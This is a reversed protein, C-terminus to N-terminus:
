KRLKLFEKLATIFGRNAEESGISLRLANPFGYGTVRRLIYGNTKLYDDALAASKDPNNSFHILLFNTVSPTVNLGLQMIENSLWERWKINYAIAKKLFEHDHVASAGAAQAPISVNFAGRIRNLADIVHLPAYLWGIRLGALGYIKSFTRTMVVNENNKVLEIGADYDDQTVFEAYAGDLVLLVHRPLGAHLREIEQRTLYTGTPNAPNAIFVIKTKENIAHLIADIDIRCNHEKVIIPLAAAGRIQIEYVNFGHETMIGEDGCNLYTNALLGLLDDSGNGAMLNEIPLKTVDSIAKLLPKSSGDPYRELHKAAEEYAKIVRPSPPFPSENSSLKHYTKTSKNESSGPIYATIDMIGKKPLPRSASEDKNM